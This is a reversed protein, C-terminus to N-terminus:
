DSLLEDSSIPADMSYALKAARGLLDWYLFPSLGTAPRKSTLNLPNFIDGSKIDARACLSRRAVEINGMECPQPKKIGDGLATEVLRIQRILDELENPELSASHDPGPLTRDLTFHKEVVVAGLAVAALAAIIGPTHDSYGTRLFFKQQIAQIARLNAASLPTPYSTVCHLLTVKELLASRGVESSYADIFAQRSPSATPDLYGLALVGLAAEIEDETAMGTSLL